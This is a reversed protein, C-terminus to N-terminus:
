VRNDGYWGAPGAAATLRAHEERDRLRWGYPEAIVYSSGETIARVRSEGLGSTFVQEDLWTLLQSTWDRADSPPAYLWYQQSRSSPLAVLLRAALGDRQRMEIDAEGERAHVDNIRYDYPEERGSSVRRWDDLSQLERIIDADAIM